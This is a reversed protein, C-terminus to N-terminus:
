QLRYLYLEYTIFIIIISNFVIFIVVSSIITIDDDDDDCQCDNYMNQLLRLLTVYTLNFCLSGYRLLKRFDCFM